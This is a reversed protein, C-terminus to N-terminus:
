APPDQAEQDLSVLQELVELGVLGVLPILHLHHSLGAQMVRVLLRQQHCPGEQDGLDGLLGQLVLRREMLSHHFCLAL